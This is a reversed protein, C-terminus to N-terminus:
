KYINNRFDQRFKEIKTKIEVFEKELVKYENIIAHQIKIDPIPIEISSLAKFTLNQRVSGSTNEKVLENFENTKMLLFLFDPLLGEKCSFVVYAPSILEGKLDEKKIGISGINVRYPNYAIYDNKVIKYSQNFEKGLKRYADYMGEDNSIGLIDFEKDPFDFLNIKDIELKIYKGLPKIEFNSEFQIHSYRKADWLNLKSYPITYIYRAM